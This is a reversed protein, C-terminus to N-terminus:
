GVVDIREMAPKRAMSSFPRFFKRGGGSRGLRFLEAFRGSEMPVPTRVVEAGAERHSGDEGDAPGLRAEVGPAATLMPPFGAGCVNLSM